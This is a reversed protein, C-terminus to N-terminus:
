KKLKFFLNSIKNIFFLPYFNLSGFTLFTPLDQAPPRLNLHLVVIPTQYSGDELLKSCQITFHCDVNSFKDARLNFSNKKIM